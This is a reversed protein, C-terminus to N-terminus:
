KRKRKINRQIERMQDNSLREPATDAPQLWTGVPEDHKPLLTPEPLPAGFTPEVRWRYGMNQLLLIPAVHEESFGDHRTAVSEHAESWGHKRRLGAQADTIEALSDQIEWELEKSEAGTVGSSRLQRTKRFLLLRLRHLSTEHERAVDALAGLPIDPFYPVWSARLHAADGKIAPMANCAEAFLSELPGHGSSV